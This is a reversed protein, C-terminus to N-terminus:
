DVVKEGTVFYQITPIEFPPAPEEVILTLRHPGPEFTPLVVGPGTWLTLTKGFIVNFAMEELIRGDVEWAARFLGNGDFRIVAYARLKSNIPVAMEGRDNQFCLEIRTIKLPGTTKGGSDTFTYHPEPQKLIKVGQRTEMTFCGCFFLMLWIILLLKAKLKLSMNNRVHTKLFHDKVFGDYKQYKEGSKVM